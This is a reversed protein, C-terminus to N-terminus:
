EAKDGCHMNSLITILILTQSYTHLGQEKSPESVVVIFLILSFASGVYLKYEQPSLCIILYILSM